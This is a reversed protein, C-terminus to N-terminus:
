TAAGPSYPTEPIPVGKILLWLALTVEFVFAPMWMYSFVAGHLYGAFQAPLLVVMLASALVGLWALPVPVMHGRLLLWAFLTSGVSFLISSVSGGGDNVKLLLDGLANTAVADAASAGTATALWLLGMTAVSFIAISLGEGVRCCLALVALEHDEDRTIGYLAVALVLASFCCLLSLLASIRVDSAHQAIRALKAATGDAATAREFLLISPLAVGIYFLFTFGAVRANTKRTVYAGLASEYPCGM